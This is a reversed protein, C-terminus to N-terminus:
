DKLRVILIFVMVGFSKGSASNWLANSVAMAGRGIQKALVMSLSPFGLKLGKLKKLTKPEFGVVSMNEGARLTRSLVM